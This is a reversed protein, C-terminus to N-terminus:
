FICTVNQNINMEYKNRTLVSNSILKQTMATVILSTNYM